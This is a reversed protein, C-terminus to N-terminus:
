KRGKVDEEEEFFIPKRSFSNTTGNLCDCCPDEDEKKKFFKCMSCYREFYCIKQDNILM